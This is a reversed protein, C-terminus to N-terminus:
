SSVAAQFCTPSQPASRSAPGKQGSAAAPRLWAPHPRPPAACLARLNGRRWGLRALGPLRPAGWALGCFFIRHCCASERSRIFLFPKQTRWPGRGKRRGAAPGGAAVRAGLRRRRRRAGAELAGAGRALSFSGAARRVSRRAGPKRAFSGGSRRGAAAARSLPGPQPSRRLSAPARASERKKQRGRREGAARVKPEEGRREEEEEGGGGKCGAGGM